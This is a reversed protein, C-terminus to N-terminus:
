SDGTNRCLICGTWTIKDKHFKSDLGLRDLLGIVNVGIAELSMRAEGPFACPRGTGAECKPCLQCSGGILGWVESNEERRVFEEISLLKKHFDLQSRLAAGRDKAVDFEKVYQLLLGREYRRLKINIETLQANHPPCMYNNGYNGCRNERCYGRIREEPVLIDASFEVCVEIGSRRAFERIESAKVIM